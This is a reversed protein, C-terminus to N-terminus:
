ERTLRDVRELWATISPRKAIETELWPNSGALRRHLQGFVALDALSLTSGALYGQADILVCLSDLGRRVDAKVKGAPYRGIGQRSLNEEVDAAIREAAAEQVAAPLDAFYARDVVDSKTVRRQEYVGYWYLV